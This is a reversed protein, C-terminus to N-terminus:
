VDVDALMAARYDRGAVAKLQMEGLKGAVDQGAAEQKKLGALEDVFAAEAAGIEDVLAARQKLLALRPPEFTAKIPDFQYVITTALKAASPTNQGMMLMGSTVVQAVEPLGVQFRGGAGVLADQVSGPGGECTLVDM